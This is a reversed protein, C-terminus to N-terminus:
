LVRESTACTQVVISLGIGNYLWFERWMRSILIVSPYQNIAGGVAIHVLKNLTFLVQLHSISGGFEIREQYSIIGQM